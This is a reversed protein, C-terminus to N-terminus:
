SRAFEEMEDLLGWMERYDEMDGVEEPEDSAARSVDLSGIEARAEEWTPFPTLSVERVDVETLKRGGHSRGVEKEGVDYGISLGMPYGMKEGQRM